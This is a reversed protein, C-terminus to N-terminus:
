KTEGIIIFREEKCPHHSATQLNSVIGETPKETETLGHQLECYKWVPHTFEDLRFLRAKWERQLKQFTQETNCEAQADRCMQCLFLHWLYFYNFATDTVYLFLKNNITDTVAMVYREGARVKFILEQHAEQHLQQSMLEGVTM